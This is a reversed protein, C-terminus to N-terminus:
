KRLEPPTQSEGHAQVVHCEVCVNKPLMLWISDRAVKEQEANLKQNKFEQCVEEHASGPGHCAECTTGELSTDSADKYGTPEGYGTTHCKLCKPDKAYQAPLLDFTKSHKTKKWALYQQFHCSACRKSGTYTQGTPPAPEQAEQTGELEAARVRAPRTAVLTSILAVVMGMVVTLAIMTRTPSHM